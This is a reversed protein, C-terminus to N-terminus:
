ILEPQKSVRPKVPPLRIGLDTLIGNVSLDEDLAPWHFGVGVPDVIMEAVQEPTAQALTKSVKALNCTVPIGNVKFSLSYGQLAVESVDYLKEM